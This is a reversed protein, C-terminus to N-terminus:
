VTSGLIDPHVYRTIATGTATGNVEPQDITALLVTSNGGQAPLYVYSTSTATTSTGAGTTTVLEYYQSPYVTTTSGSAQSVRNGFADYAYTTGYGWGDISETVNGNADYLNTTTVAVGSGASTRM